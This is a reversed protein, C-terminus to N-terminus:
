RIRLHSFSRVAAYFASRTVDLWKLNVVVATEGVIVAGYLKKGAHPKLKARGADKIIFQVQHVGPARLSRVTEVDSWPVPLNYRGVFLGDPSLSVEYDSPAINRNKTLFLWTMWLSLLSMVFCVIGAVAANPSRDFSVSPAMLLSLALLFIGFIGIMVFQTKKFRIKVASAAAREGAQHDAPRSYPGWQGASNSM